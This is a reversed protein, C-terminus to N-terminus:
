QLLRLAAQPSQNAQSLVAVGAQKLINSQTLKASEDAFDTDRIRSNAAAFNETQVSLNNITSGLRSQIAGLYSRYEAVKQIATDLTGISLQASEKSDVRTGGDDTGKGLNLGNSDTNTNLQSLDLRIVNVPNNEGHNDVSAFHDKGVQIELPYPNSRNVLAPDVADQNGVLLRTGNYETANTIRDIEDKLATYEKNLFGREVNGITDSSSQVALERLRSLINGVENLGGEATQVLSVGDNANRKAMNLGRIDAKLKESIALGAADDAAKNIRYGSALREMSKDNSETAVVLNRQATLAQINTQIRLGM